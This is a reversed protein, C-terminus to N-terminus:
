FKAKARVSPVPPSQVFNQITPKLEFLVWEETQSTRIKAVVDWNPPNGRQPWFQRWKSTVGEDQRLFDMGKWERHEADPPKVWEVETPKVGLCQAVAGEMINSGGCLHRQLHYESGYGKGMKAM